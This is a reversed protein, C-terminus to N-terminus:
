FPVNCTLTSRQPTTGACQDGSKTTLTTPRMWRLRWACGPQRHLDPFDMARATDVTPHALFFSM